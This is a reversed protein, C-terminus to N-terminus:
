LGVGGHFPPGAVCSSGGEMGHCARQVVRAWGQLWRVGMRAHSPFARFFCEWEVRPRESGLGGSEIFVYTEATV